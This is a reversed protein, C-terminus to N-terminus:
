MGMGAFLMHMVTVTLGFAITALVGIGVMDKMRIKGSAFATAATPGSWPWMIGISLNPILMVVTTVDLGMRLAAPILIAGFGATFAIASIFNTIFGLALGVLPLTVVTIRLEALANEMLELFGFQALSNMMATASLTLLIINWPIHEVAEKWTVTAEGKKMDVPLLFLLFLIIPPVIWIEFVRALWMSIAHNAGLLLSAVPGVLFLVLMVVFSILVNNEGRSRKGLRRLESRIFEEGGPIHLIEPPFFWRLFFYLTVLLTLSIPVGRAMWEFWGITEGTLNELLSVSIVNPPTGVLTAIGGATTAYLSGLVLFTTFHGRGTEPGKNEDLDAVSYVYSSISIAIPIALAITALDSLFMSTLGIALMYVFAIRHTTTSIGKLSLLRLAFRKALGHKQMAWGLLSTGMLWFLISQGYLSAVSSVKMLGFLPFIVIPLVATIGWPVPQLIWWTIAWGFTALAVGGEYPLGTVPILLIILFVFPGSLTRILALTM